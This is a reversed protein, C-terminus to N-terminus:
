RLCCICSAGLPLRIKVRGFIRWEPLHAHVAISVAGTHFLCPPFSSLIHSLGVVSSSACFRLSGRGLVDEQGASLARICARCERFEFLVVSASGSLFVRMDLIRVRKCTACGAVVVADLASGCVCRSRPSTRAMTAVQESTITNSTIVCAEAGFADTVCGSFRAMAHPPM